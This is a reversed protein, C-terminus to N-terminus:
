PKCMMGKDLRDLLKERDKTLVPFRSQSKNIVALIDAAVPDKVDVYYYIWQGARKDQVLNMDRLKALHRSIKPQSEGLIACIECVCLEKQSLLVLIRLRTEDSITRLFDMLETM